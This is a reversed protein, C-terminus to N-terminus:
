KVEMYQAVPVYVFKTRVGAAAADYVDVPIRINPPDLPVRRKVIGAAAADYQEVEIFRRPDQPQPDPM